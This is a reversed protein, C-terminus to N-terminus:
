KKVKKKPQEEEEDEDEDEDEDEEGDEDDEDSDEESDDDEDDEEEDDEDDEEEGAAEARAKMRRIVEEIPLNAEEELDNLEATVDGQELQEEEALTAEDDAKAEFKYEDGEEKAVPEKPTQETSSSAM